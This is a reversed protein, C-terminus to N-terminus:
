RCDVNSLGASRGDGELRNDCRVVNENVPRLAVLHGEDADIAGSNGTFVNRTGWGDAVDHTQFGDLPSFRGVNDRIEWDNGKVDVWSDADTIGSGDFQNDHLVGESTGEKIDVAESTTAYIANRAVENRDSRDPEGDTISEWNSTATGIYVGEGFKGRRHGTDSIVNDVVRNDTSHRRLHVAEDGIGYVTLGSITTGVTGDAMVGKQGNRVTFGHLLWHQAGDLHLVYGGEVGGGDLVADAPGCLTAPAESTGSATIVFRGEYLGPRLRITSGPGAASLAARLEDGDAVETTAARCLGTDPKPAVMWGPLPSPSSLSMGDEDEEKEDDDEAQEDDDGSPQDDAAGSGSVLPAGSPAGTTTAVVEGPVEGAATTVAPAADPGGESCATLVVVLALLALARRAPARSM